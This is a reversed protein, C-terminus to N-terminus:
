ARVQYVPKIRARGAHNSCKRAMLANMEAAAFSSTLITQRYRQATGSLYWDRVRMIDTGHQEHPLTNLSAM